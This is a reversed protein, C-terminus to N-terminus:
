LHYEDCKSGGALVILYLEWNEGYEFLRRLNKDNISILDFISAM